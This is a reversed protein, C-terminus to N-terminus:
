QLYEKEQRAKQRMEVVRKKHKQIEVFQEEKIEKDRRKISGIKTRNQIKSGKNAIDLKLQKRRVLRTDKESLPDDM